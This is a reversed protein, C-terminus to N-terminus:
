ETKDTPHFFDPEPESPNEKEEKKEQGRKCLLMLCGFCLAAAAVSAGWVADTLAFVPVVAAAAIASLITFIIRLTKM